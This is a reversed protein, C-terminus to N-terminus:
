TRPSRTWSRRWRGTAWGTAGHCGSCFAAFDEAGTPGEDPVCAALLPLLMLYRLHM